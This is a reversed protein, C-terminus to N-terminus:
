GPRWRALGQVNQLYQTLLFISGFMGFYMLLSAINAASFVRSAFFRLPLMPAPRACSGCGRLRRAAVAGAPWRASRDPSRDLRLANGRVLGWVIGFLGASALALGPLDLTRDPGFSERLRRSPSRSPAGLGIPVNLWFVWQWNIGEVVAGGVLPGLAVGLGSIASWGGLALGRRERRVAADLLITLTLPM